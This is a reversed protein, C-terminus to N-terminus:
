KGTVISDDTKHSKTQLELNEAFSISRRSTQMIYQFLVDYLMVYNRLGENVSQSLEYTLGTLTHNKNVGRFLSRDFVNVRGQWILQEDSTHKKVRGFVGSNTRYNGSLDYGITNKWRCIEYKGKSLPLQFSVPKMFENIYIGSLKVTFFLIDQRTEFDKSAHIFVRCKIENSKWKWNNIFGSTLSNFIQWETERDDSALEQFRDVMERTYPSQFAKLVPDNMGLLLKKNQM